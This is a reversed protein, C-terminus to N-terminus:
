KEEKQADRWNPGIELDVKVPVELKVADRMVDAIERAIKRDPVSCCLEDHVQILAHKGLGARWVARMAMKTQDAASPQILSNLAKHIRARTLPVNPWAERAKDIPLMRRDRRGWDSPEWLDFHIRRKLLSRIYGRKRVMDM